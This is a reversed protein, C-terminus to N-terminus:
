QSNTRVRALCKELTGLDTSNATAVVENCCFAQEEPTSKVLCCNTTPAAPDCVESEKQVSLGVPGLGPYFCNFNADEVESTAYPFYYQAIGDLFPCHDMVVRTTGDLNFWARPVKCLEIGDGRIAPTPKEEVKIFDLPDVRMRKSFILEWPQQASIRGANPGPIVKQLYPSTLDLEKTLVFGWYFNDPAKWNDFIPFEKPASNPGDTEFPESGDLANGSIDMVGSFPIAQYKGVEEVEAAELLLQYSDSECSVNPRDCVPMCFMPKGCANTGCQESPTFELTRYGNTLRFKGRPQSSNKNNLFIHDDTLNFTDPSTLDVNDNSPTFVGQMGIPDMAENFSVQIVTNRASTSGDRPYADIVHPPSNDLELSCTFEWEYFDNGLSTQNFASPNGPVDLKIEKGLRVTYPVLKINNGLNKHPRIVITYVQGEEYSALVAAGSIQEKTDSRWILIHDENRNILTDCGNVWDIKNDSNRVCDGLTGSNNTDKVFNDLLIPQRFTVIIKTNRPVNVQNRYPYHDKIINGLAGSGRFNRSNLAVVGPGGEPGRIGLLRMVFTVIALAMFIIALGIAANVMIKKANTIQEENGGATMWLFGAYLIIVVMVIGILGFAVRIIRAVIIRIDTRPLGLPEEIVDIGEILESTPASPDAQQAQAPSAPLVLIICFVVALLLGGFVTTKSKLFASNDRIWQSM